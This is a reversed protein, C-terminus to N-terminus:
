TGALVEDVAERELRRRRCELAAEHANRRAIAQTSALARRTWTLPWPTM